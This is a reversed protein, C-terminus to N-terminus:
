LGLGMSTLITRLYPEPAIYSTGFEPYFWHDTGATIRQGGGALHELTISDRLAGTDVPVRMLVEALAVGGIIDMQANFFPDVALEALFALNPIFEAM